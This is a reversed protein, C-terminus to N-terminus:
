VLVDGNGLALLWRPHDLGTAFPQVKLGAAPTPMEGQKWGVSKAVKVLPIIGTHPKGILPQTGQVATIDVQARQRYGSMFLIAGGILLILVLVAIVGIFVRKMM